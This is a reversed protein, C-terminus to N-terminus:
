PNDPDSAAAPVWVGRDCRLLVAGSKIVTADAYAQDNFYCVPEEPVGERLTEPDEEMEWAIPSNKREPDPAGLNLTKSAMM